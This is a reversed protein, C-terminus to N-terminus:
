SQKFVLIYGPIGNIDYRLPRKPPTNPNADKVTQFVEDLEDANSWIYSMSVLPSTTDTIVNVQNSNHYISKLNIIGM